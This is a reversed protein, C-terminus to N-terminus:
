VRSWTFVTDISSSRAQPDVVRILNRICAKSVFFAEDNELFNSKLLRIAPELSM